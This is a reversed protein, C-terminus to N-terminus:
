RSLRFRQNPYILDPDRIQGRNSRYIKTYSAGSGYYKRAIRWLSDGRNVTYYRKGAHRGRRVKRRPAHDDKHVEERGHDRPSSGTAGGAPGSSTKVDNRGGGAEAPSADGAADRAALRAGPSKAGPSKAGPSKAGPSKAGPSKAGEPKGAEDSRAALQRESKRKPVVIRATKVGDVTKAGDKSTASLELTYAGEDLPKGPAMVWSGSSDAQAEAIVRGGSKLRVTWEPEAKGAVVIEGTADARVVDFGPAQAAPAKAKESPGSPGAEGRAPSLAKAPAQRPAAPAIVTQRPATAQKRASPQEQLSSQQKASLGPNLSAHDSSNFQQDLITQLEELGGKQLYVLIVCLVVGM